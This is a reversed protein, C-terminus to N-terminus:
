SRPPWRWSLGEANEVGELEPVLVQLVPNAPNPINVNVVWTGDPGRCVISGSRETEMGM